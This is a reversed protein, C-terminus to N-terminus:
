GTWYIKQHYSVIKKKGYGYALGKMEVLGGPVSAQKHEM